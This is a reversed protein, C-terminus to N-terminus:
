TGLKQLWTSFLPAESQDPSVPVPPLYTLERAETPTIGYRQRFARSFSDKRLFGYRVAIDSIKPDSDADVLEKRIRELRRVQLYDHIGGASEFARYLTRRSVGLADAIRDATLASSTLQTEIYRKARRLLAARLPVRAAHLNDPSPKLCATLVSCTALAIDQASHAPMKELNVSLMTVYEAILRAGPGTFPQGHMQELVASHEDLQDRSIVLNILNSETKEAIIPQALDIVCIQGQGGNFVNGRSESRWEGSQHLTLMFHDLQDRGIRRSTRIYRQGEIKSRALLIDNIKFVRISADFGSAKQPIICEVEFLSSIAHRWADFQEETKLCTTTFHTTEIFRSVM